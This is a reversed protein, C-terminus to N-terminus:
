RIELHNSRKFNKVSFSHSSLPSNVFPSFHNYDLITTRGKNIPNLYAFKLFIMLMIDINM